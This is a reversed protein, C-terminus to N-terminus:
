SFVIGNDGIEDEFFQLSTSFLIPNEPTLREYLIIEKANEPSREHWHPLDYTNITWQGRYGSSFFVDSLKEMKKVKEGDVEKEDLKKEKWQQADFVEVEKFRFKLSDLKPDQMSKEIEDYNMLRLM